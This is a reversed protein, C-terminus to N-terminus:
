PSRRSSLIASHYDRLRFTSRRTHPFQSRSSPPTLTKLDSPLALFQLFQGVYRNNAYAYSLCNILMGAAMSAQTAAGTYMAVDGATLHSALARFAIYAYCGAVCAASLATLLLAWRGECIRVRRTEAYLNRLHGRLPVHLPRVLWVTPVEKAHDPKEPPHRLLDNEQGRPGPQLLSATKHWLAFRVILQPASAALLVAAIGWDIM